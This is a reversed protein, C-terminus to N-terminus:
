SSLLSLKPHLHASPDLHLAWDASDFYQRSKSMRKKAVINAPKPQEFIPYTHISNSTGDKAWDASDFYKREPNGNIRKLAGYKGNSSNKISDNERELAQQDCNEKNEEVNMEDIKHDSIEEESTPQPIPASVNILNKQNTLNM